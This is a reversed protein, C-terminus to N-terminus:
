YKNLRDIEVQYTASMGVNLEIAKQWLAIAESKQNNSEAIRAFSTVLDIKSKPDVKSLAQTYVTKLEAFSMATKDDLYQIKTNWYGVFLPKLAIAKDISEIAKNVDGMVNYTNFLRVYAIQSNVYSLAQNYYVISQQYDKNLFSKDGDLIAQNFKEQKPNSFDINLSTAGETIDTESSTNKVEEKKVGDEIVKPAENIPNIFLLLAGLVVFVGIILLYKKKELINQM